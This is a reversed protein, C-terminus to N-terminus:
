LLEDPMPVTKGTARIVPMSANNERLRKSLTKALEAVKDPHLAAV